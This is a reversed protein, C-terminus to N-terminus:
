PQVMRTSHMLSIDDQLIAGNNPYLMSHMQNRLYDVYDSATIRGKLTTVPGDSYCYIEAWIMMSGGGNKVTPVMGETNYAEKPRRWVYDRGPTPIL